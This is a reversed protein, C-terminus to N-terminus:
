ALHPGVGGPENEFKLIVRYEVDYVLYDWIHSAVILSLVQQGFKIKTLDGVLLLVTPGDLYFMSDFIGFFSTKTKVFIPISQVTPKFKFILIQSKWKLNTNSTQRKMM